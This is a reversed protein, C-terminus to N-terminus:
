RTGTEHNLKEAPRILLDALAHPNTENMSDEAGCNLRADVDTHRGIYLRCAEGEEDLQNLRGAYKGHSRTEILHLDAMQSQLLLQWARSAVAVRNWPFEM